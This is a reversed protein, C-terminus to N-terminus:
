FTGPKFRLQSITYKKGNVASKGSYSGTHPDYYLRNRPNIVNKRNADAAGVDFFRYYKGKTDVGTGVIAIFHDTTHENDTGGFTHNVGAMVPKHLAIYEDLKHFGRAATPQLVLRHGSELVIQIRDKTGANYGVMKKVTACCLRWGVKDSGTPNQSKWFSVPM